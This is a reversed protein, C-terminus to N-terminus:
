SVRRPDPQASAVALEEESPVEDRVPIRYAGDLWRGLDVDRCRASCFPAAPNAARDTRVAVKCIPCLSEM